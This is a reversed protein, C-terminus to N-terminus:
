ASQSNTVDRQAIRPGTPELVVAAVRLAELRPAAPPDSAPLEAALAEWGAFTNPFSGLTQPHLGSDDCTAVVITAKAVDIGVTVM